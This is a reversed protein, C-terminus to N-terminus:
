KTASGTLMHILTVQPPLEKWATIIVMGVQLGLLLDGV